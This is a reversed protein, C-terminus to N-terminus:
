LVDKLLEDFVAVMKEPMLQRSNLPFHHHFKEKHMRMLMHRPQWKCYIGDALLGFFSRVPLCLYGGEGLWHVQGFKEENVFNSSFLTDRLNYDQLLVLELPPLRQFIFRFLDIELYAM